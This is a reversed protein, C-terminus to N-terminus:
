GPLLQAPKEKTNSCRRFIKRLISAATLARCAFCLFSAGGMEELWVPIDLGLAKLMSLLECRSLSSVSGRYRTNPHKVLQFCYVM